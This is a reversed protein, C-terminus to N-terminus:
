ARCESGLEMRPALGPARKAEGARRAIVENMFEVIEAAAAEHSRVLPRGNAGSEAPGALMSGIADAMATADDPPVLKGTGLHAVEPIGGVRTAVFPTGCATAELLVNPVGESRSSMVFLDAARFWDPLQEHPRPGLFQVRDAIGLRAAQQELPARLPGQGVLCLRFGTGRKALAGCADFLVDLGKVDVLNGVFLLIPVEGPLDLRNRAEHKPGPHFRSADVGGYVVKVNEAAVGLCRVREALDQSVAIVGDAERLAAATAARRRLGSTLVLVDSGHVKIVVPLAHRRALRVAAWGDPYVWTALLLDPRFDAVLRDVTRRVSWEYCLGYTGRLMRPPFWYRPHWVELGDLMTRRGMPLPPKGARRASLEDTWAVPAVVTMRNGGQSAVARLQQRNFTARHPQLPNPYLNTLALIRM